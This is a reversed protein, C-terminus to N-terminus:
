NLIKHKRKLKKILKVYNYYHITKQEKKNAQDIIPKIKKYLDILHIGALKDVVKLDYIYKNIGVAFHELRAILARYDDYAEKCKKDNLNEVIMKANDSNTSVFKDLVENQLINFAEITAKRRQYIKTEIYTVLSFIASIVAIIISTNESM